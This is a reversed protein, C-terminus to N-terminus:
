LGEVKFGNTDAYKKQATQMENLAATKGAVLEQLNEFERQRAEDSQALGFKKYSTYINKLYTFYRISAQKFNEAEKVKPAPMTIVEQLKGDVIKEMRDSVAVISDYDQVTAFQEVKRETQEIDPMMSRELKVIAESYKFAKKKSNCSVLAVLLLTAIILKYKM